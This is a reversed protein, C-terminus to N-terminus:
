PVKNSSYHVLLVEFFELHYVHMALSVPLMFVLYLIVKDVLSLLNTLLLLQETELWMLLLLSLKTLFFLLLFLCVLKLSLNLM